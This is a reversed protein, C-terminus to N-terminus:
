RRFLTVRPRQRVAGAVEGFTWKKGGQIARIQIVCGRTAQLGNELWLISEHDPYGLHKEPALPSTCSSIPLRIRILM